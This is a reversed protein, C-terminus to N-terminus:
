LVDAFGHRTKQFWVFGVWAFVGTAVTMAALEPWAPPRGWILLDRWQEIIFTLPNLYMVARYQEPIATVPFFVPSAFMLVTTLLGVTQGVDRLFVGLASLLWTAGLTLLVLPVLSLPLLVITLPPRYGTIMGFALLVGFSVLAHFLASGLAVWPLIELPFVVKKVYSPNGLVLSPARNICEAFIGFIVMGAFLVFAFESRSESGVGWRARFVISFVFTYVALMLIPNFLSWAIGMISGRYRGVVETRVMQAVLRRHRWAAAFMEQPAIGFQRM